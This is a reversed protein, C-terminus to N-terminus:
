AVQKPGSRLGITRKPELQCIETTIDFGLDNETKFINADYYESNLYYEENLFGDTLLDGFHNIDQNTYKFKEDEGEEGEDIVNNQLPPPM